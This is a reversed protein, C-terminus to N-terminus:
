FGLEILSVCSELEGLSGAVEPPISGGLRRLPQLIFEEVDHVSKCLEELKENNGEM